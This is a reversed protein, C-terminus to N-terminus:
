SSSPDRTPPLCRPSPSSLDVDSRPLPLSNVSQETRHDDYSSRSCTCIRHHLENGNEHKKGISTCLQVGRRRVDHAFRIFYLHLLLFWGNIVVAALHSTPFLSILQTQSPSLPTFFEWIKIVDSKSPGTGRVFPEASLHPHFKKAFRYLQNSFLNQWGYQLIGQVSTQTAPCSFYM